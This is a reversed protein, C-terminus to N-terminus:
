YYYGVRTVKKLARTMVVMQIPIMVPWLGYYLMSYLINHYRVFYWVGPYYRKIGQDLSYEWFEGAKHLAWHKWIGTSGCGATLYAIGYALLGMYLYVMQENAM